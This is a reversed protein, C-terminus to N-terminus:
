SQDTNSEDNGELMWYVACDKYCSRCYTKKYYLAKARDSFAIHLVSGETVGDCYIVQPTEHKYYPCLTGEYSYHKM